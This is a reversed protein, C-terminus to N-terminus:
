AFPSRPVVSIQLATARRQLARGVSPARLSM